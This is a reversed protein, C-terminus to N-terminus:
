SALQVKRLIDQDNFLGIVLVSSHIKVSSTFNMGAAEIQSAQLSLDFHAEQENLPM